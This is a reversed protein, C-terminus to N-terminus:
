EPQPNSSAHYMSITSHYQIIWVLWSLAEEPTSRVVNAIWILFHTSIEALSRLHRLPITYLILIIMNSKNYRIWLKCNSKYATSINFFCNYQSFRSSQLIMSFISSDSIGWSNKHGMVCSIIFSGTCHEPLFTTIFRKSKSIKIIDSILNSILDSILDSIM